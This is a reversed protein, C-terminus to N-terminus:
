GSADAPASVHKRVDGMPELPTGFGVAAAALLLAGGGAYVWRVGVAEVALGGLGLSVLRAANWAVDYVAFARGRLDDPVATQLTSQYAVMGTSTSMGYAVLGGGAAVANSTTALMLDVGGRVAYPGFLWRRTAPRIFRRLLAPGAAAGVGIAALLVGFGRPGVDLRREALVVLLGGTAGASLSALVQVIALRRLLPHQRIASAGAAVASWGRVPVAARSRGAVLRGILLASLAFSAANFAFAVGVGYAGILLGATPALVIQAVVAVTWLASNATVLDDADVVHPLLSSSAPNFLMSGLSLAFAVAFTLPLSGSWVALAGAAAARGLDAGIMVSRRPFRDAALGAVAGFLLIPLIEFAVVGAVGVGSGTLDFVLVVLAVTNFADGARSVAHAAFLRRLEPNRRLLPLV